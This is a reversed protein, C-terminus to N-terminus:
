LKPVNRLLSWPPVSGPYSVATCLGHCRRDMGMHNMQKLNPCLTRRYRYYRSRKRYRTCTDTHTYSHTYRYAHTHAYAHRHACVCM